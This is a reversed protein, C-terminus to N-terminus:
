REIVMEGMEYEIHAATDPGDALDLLAAYLRDVEGAEFDTAAADHRWTQINMAHLRAMAPATVAIPTMVASVVRCGARAALETLDRGIHLAQGHRRQLEGVLAYYRALAPHDSELRAAEQVLLRGSPALADAWRALAAVPDRLHTLLFRSYAVDVDLANFDCTTVDGYRYETGASSERRARELFRESGDIGIAVNPRLVRALTRTTHGPGCGLDLVRKARTVGARELFALMSPEFVRALHALRDAALDADGFTYHTNLTVHSGLEM